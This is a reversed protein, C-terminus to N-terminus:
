ARVKYEEAKTNLDNMPDAGDPSGTFYFKQNKNDFVRNVILNVTTTSNTVIINVESNKHAAEETITRVPQSRTIVLLFAAGPSPTPVPSTKGSSPREGPFVGGEGGYRGSGVCDGPLAITASPPFTSGNTPSILSITPSVNGTVRINIVASM